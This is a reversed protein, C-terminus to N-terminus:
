VKQRAKDLLESLTNKEKETLSSFITDFGVFKNSINETFDLGKKTIYIDIQRRNLTNNKRKVLKMKELKDVLRTLDRTKDLMVEKISKPCHPEPYKGKLIRLINFHPETINYEKFVHKNIRELEKATYIINIYLEETLNKFDKSLKIEDKIKM